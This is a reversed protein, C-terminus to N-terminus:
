VLGIGRRKMEKQILSFERSSQGAVSTNEQARRFLYPMVKEVPGYPVYKVVNYGAAALTYSLNDSMGYLQAFYFREDNPKIGHKEMLITLLQNSYENHSGSCLAIRQKNDLCYKLAQNYLDDTAQKTPNIPDSYGMEQARAREKEMYAGRVLKAGLHITHMTAMHMADQLLRLGDRRYLQYTNYVVPRQQNYKQMMEYALADITNQIWTEEGDIFVRVGAEATAKCIRDVRQRVRSFAATEADSLPEQRQVKELLDFSALGTVKFVCIPIAPSNRAKEVTRLTEETTFEFGEETKEGEVSYDLITKIGFRSLELITSKSEEITEGGCFQEFITHKVAAKIPLGLQFATKLVATGAKTLLSNNMSAFVLYKKRLAKNSQAAFATKTDDFLLQQPHSPAVPTM